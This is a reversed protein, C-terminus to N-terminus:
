AGASPGPGGGPAPRRLLHALLEARSNVGFHRYLATVYQHVTPRSLGLCAAVQKESDGQLLRDLTQRLRPSLGAQRQADPRALATGILRGLEEHYLHLLRRERPSFAREGLSRHLDILHFMGGPGLPHVSYVCQDVGAVKRFENFSPSRYWATDDILQRRVRTVLRGTLGALGAFIPDLSAVRQRMFPAFVALEAPSFGVIIPCIYRILGDPRPWHIEGGKAARAGLLPGLGEFAHRRWAEANAGLDRCDGVLHFAARVDSLRLRSSRGM